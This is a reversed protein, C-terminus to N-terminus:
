PGQLPEVVRVPRLRVSESLIGDGLAGFIDDGWCWGEGGTTKGCAHSDGASLQAFAHGGVGAVPSPWRPGRATTASSPLPTPAWCYAQSTWTAM